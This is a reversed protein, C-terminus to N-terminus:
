GEKDYVYRWIESLKGDMEYEYKAKGGEGHRLVVWFEFNSRGLVSVRCEVAGEGYIEDRPKLKKALVM